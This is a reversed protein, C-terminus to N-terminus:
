NRGFAYRHQDCVVTAGNAIGVWVDFDVVRDADIQVGHLDLVVNFKVRAVQDHDGTAVIQTTDTGDCGSFSM